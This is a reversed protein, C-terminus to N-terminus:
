NRSLYVAAAKYAQFTFWLCYCLAIAQSSKCGPSLSLNSVRQEVIRLFGEAWRVANCKIWLVSQVTFICTGM